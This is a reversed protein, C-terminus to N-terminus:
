RSEREVAEEGPLFHHKWLCQELEEIVKEGVNRIGLLDAKDMELM